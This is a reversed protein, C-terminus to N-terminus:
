APPPPDQLREQGEPPLASNEQPNQSLLLPPGPFKGLGPPPDGRRVLRERPEPPLPLSSTSECAQPGTLLFGQPRLGGSRAQPGTPPDWPSNPQTPHAPSMRVLTKTHLCLYPPYSFVYGLPPGSVFSPPPLELELLPLAQPNGGKGQPIEFNERHHFIREYPFQSFNQTRRPNESFFLNRGVRVTGEGHEDQFQCLSLSVCGNEGSNESLGNEPAGFDEPPPSYSRGLVLENRPADLFNERTEPSDLAMDEGIAQSPEHLGLPPNAQEYGMPHYFRSDGGSDPM